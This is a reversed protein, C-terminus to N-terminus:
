KEAIRGAEVEYLGGIAANDVFKQDGASLKGTSSGAPATPPATPPAPQAFATSAIMLGGATVAAHLYKM